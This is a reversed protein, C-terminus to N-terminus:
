GSALQRLAETVLNHGSAVKVDIVHRLLTPRTSNRHPQRRNVTLGVSAMCVRAHIVVCPTRCEGFTRLSPPSMFREGTPTATTLEM